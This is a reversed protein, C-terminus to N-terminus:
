IFQEFSFSFILTLIFFGFLVYCINDVKGPVLYWGNEKTPLNNKAFFEIQGKISYPSAHEQRGDIAISAIITVIINVGAGIAAYWPWAVDTYLSTLTVAIFGVATGVLLGKETAHKSFFGLGFMGLQAGVFYSGVKSLVELISGTSYLHYMIAPFIIIAAWFVTFVRSVKLYHKDSENSKFYKKYFDITSVTSLSNFASDLSSMSAAMVAAAIIGMLGPLGYDSAFQLIITNENEFTRGQYYSYFLIGMIIFFFYIFFALFGMLLYSKKADGINRAALTRQVMMQNTGYVTVHYLSMAFIGSWVTTVKSFDMDFNLLNTKGQQKLIALTDSVSLTMNDILAYMIIGAGIFLVVSQIVDTWIVATIGGMVTYILAIVTVIMIGNIVSVGTIYNLVIATAYLVAASSMTQSLLWIGSVLARAKKGFRKEQYEYISAVGANYFFPFFFTIVVIIVLPYNLHIAIVSLGDKYAWAPAGLFTMASVYTAIVSIGIAWWPTNKRGLYFDDATSVKKSIVFGLLLNALIYVILITWNLTGFETM